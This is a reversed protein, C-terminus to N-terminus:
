KVAKPVAPVPRKSPVSSNFKIPEGVKGITPMPDHEKGRCFFICGAVAAFLLLPWFSGDDDKKAAVYSPKSEVIPAVSEKPSTVPVTVEPVSDRQVINVPMSARSTGDIIVQAKRAEQELDMFRNILTACAKQHHIDSKTQTKKGTWSRKIDTHQLRFSEQTSRLNKFDIFSMQKGEVEIPSCQGFAVEIHEQLDKIYADPAYPPINEFQTEGFKTIVDNVLSCLGKDRGKVECNQSSNEKTSYFSTSQQDCKISVQDAPKQPVCFPKSDSSFGFVHPSCSLQNKPCLGRLKNPEEGGCSGDTVKSLYGAVVCPAGDKSYDLPAANKAKTSVSSKTKEIPKAFAQAMWWPPYSQVSDVSGGVTNIQYYEEFASILSRYKSFYEQAQRPDKNYLEKLESHTLLSNQKHQVWKESYFIEEYSVSKNAIKAIKDSKAFNPNSLNLELSETKDQMFFIVKIKGSDNLKQIEIQPVTANPNLDKYSLLRNYVKPHLYPKIKPLFDAIKQEQTWGTKKVISKLEHVADAQAALVVGDSTMVLSLSLIWKVLFSFKSKSNMTIVRRVEGDARVQDSEKLTVSYAPLDSTRKLCAGAKLRTKTAARKSKNM